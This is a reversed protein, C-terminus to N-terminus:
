AGPLRFVRRTNATTAEGLATVSLGAEAAIVEATHVLFAPENRKGRMPIPALYPCDTELLLRHHPVKKVAARIDGASKFTAIGSFSVYCGMDAYIEADAPTGTFCHIIVGLTAAGTDALIQQADAHADRIHCVVPKKVEHALAIFRRFADQQVDRPSHDYHYDLGTEGVAVVSPHAALTALEPWFDPEIAAADHPHIAVAAYLHPDSEALAIARRCTALDGASGIVIIDCLGAARARELVAERDSDFEPGDIHAHSDIFTPM